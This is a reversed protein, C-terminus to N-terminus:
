PAKAEIQISAYWRSLADIDADGLGKAIVAMVEHKRTGDRFAKLQAVLYGQPQGAIHPTEPVTSIGKPGHCVACAGAGAPAAGQGHALPALAALVAVALAGGRALQGRM